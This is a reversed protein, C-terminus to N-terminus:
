FSKWDNQLDWWTNKFLKEVLCGSAKTEKWASCVDQESVVEWNIAWCRWALMSKVMRWSSISLYKVIFLLKKREILDTHQLQSTVFYLPCFQEPSVVQVCDQNSKLQCERKEEQRRETNFCLVSWKNTSLFSWCLSWEMLPSINVLAVLHVPHVSRPLAALM